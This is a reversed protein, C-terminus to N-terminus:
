PQFPSRLPPRYPDRVPPMRIPGATPSEPDSAIPAVTIPNSLTPSITTTSLSSGSAPLPNSITPDIVPHFPDLLTTPRWRAPTLAGSVAVQAVVVGAGLSAALASVVLAVTGRRSKHVRLM